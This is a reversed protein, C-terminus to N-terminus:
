AVPFPLATTEPEAVVVNEIEGLGEVAVRVRDGVKLYAPPKM